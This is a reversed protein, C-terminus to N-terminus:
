AMFIFALIACIVFALAVVPIPSRAVPLGLAPTNGSPERTPTHPTM